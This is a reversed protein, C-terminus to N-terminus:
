TKIGGKEFRRFLLTSALAVVMMWALWSCRLLVLDTTWHMGNWTFTKLNGHQDQPGISLSFGGDYDGHVALVASQLEPQVISLGTLDLADAHIEMPVALAAAWFFVYFVNGFGRRLWPINEFLLAMASTMFIVPMTILLSPLLIEGSNVVGAERKLAQMAFAAIVMIGVMFTLVCINSLLKSFIYTFNGVRTAALIQGVRTQEDRELANKVIYFGAISFLTVTTLAMLMGVWASNYVGRYNGLALVINGAYASYGLYLTAIITVFFGYRRTRELLDAKTLHYLIRLYETM